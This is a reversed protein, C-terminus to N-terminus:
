RKPLETSPTDIICLVLSSSRFMVGDMHTEICAHKAFENLLLLM